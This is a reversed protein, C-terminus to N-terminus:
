EMEQDLESALRVLRAMDRLGIKGRYYRNGANARTVGDLLAQPFTAAIGAPSRFDAELLVKAFTSGLWQLRSLDSLHALEEIAAAPAGIKTALAVREKKTLAAEYLEASTRIGAAALAGVAGPHAEPYDALLIPKPRFSEVTRRLLVLYSEKLGTRAAVSPPGKAGKLARSLDELTSIGASRLTELKGDLGELLPRQSPILDASELRRKLDGLTKAAFDMHYPM